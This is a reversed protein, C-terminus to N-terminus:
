PIVKSVMSMPQKIMHMYVHLRPLKFPPLCGHLPTGGRPGIYFFVQDCGVVITDSDTSTVTVLSSTTAKSMSNKHYSLSQVTPQSPFVPHGNSRIACLVHVIYLPGWLIYVHIYMYYNERQLTAENYMQLKCHRWMLWKMLTGYRSPEILHVALCSM